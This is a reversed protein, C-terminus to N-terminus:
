ALMVVDSVMGLRRKMRSRIKPIISAINGNSTLSSVHSLNPSHHKAHNGACGGAPKSLRHPNIKVGNKM